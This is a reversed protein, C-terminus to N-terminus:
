CIFFMCIKGLFGDVRGGQSAQYRCSPDTGRRLSSGSLVPLSDDTNWLPGIVPQVISFTFCIISSRIMDYKNGGVSHSMEYGM